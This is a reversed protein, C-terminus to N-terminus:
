WDVSKRSQKRESRQKKAKLRREKAGRSPRTKKRKKPPHLASRILAALKERADELNRSQDRTAQSTIQIRGERDLRNAALRRLRGKVEDRLATTGELDFRLDVKTAVKNVNQGGPGSSTAASWSLDASPIVTRQSVPLDDM